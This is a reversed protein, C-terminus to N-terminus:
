DEGGLRRLARRDQGLEADLELDPDGANILELLARRVLDRELVRVPFGVGDRRAVAFDDQARVRDDREARPDVALRLVSLLGLRREFGQRTSRV